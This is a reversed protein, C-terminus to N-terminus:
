ENVCEFEIYLYQSDLFFALQGFPVIAGGESRVGEAIIRYKGGCAYYMQEYADNRRAKKVFEAGQNLYKITGRRNQENVPGYQSKTKVRPRVVMAASVCGTFAMLGILLTSVITKM